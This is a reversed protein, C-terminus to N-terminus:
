SKSQNEVKAKETEIKQHAKIQASNDRAYGIFCGNVLLRWKIIYYNIIFLKLSEINKMFACHFM